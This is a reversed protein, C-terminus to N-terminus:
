PVYDSLGEHDRGCGRDDEEEGRADAIAGERWRLAGKLARLLSSKWQGRPALFEIAVWFVERWWETELDKLELKLKLLNLRLFKFTKFDWLRKEKGKAKRLRRKPAVGVANFARMQEHRLSRPPHRCSRDAPAVGSHPCRPGVTRSPGKAAIASGWLAWSM